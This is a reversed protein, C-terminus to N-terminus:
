LWHKTALQRTGLAAIGALGVVVLGVTSPEPVASISVNDFTQASFDYL